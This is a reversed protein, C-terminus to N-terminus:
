NSDLLIPFLTGLHSIGLFVAMIQRLTLIASKEMSSSVASIRCFPRSSASLYVSFTENEVLDM